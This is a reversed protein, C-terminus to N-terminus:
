SKKEIKLGLSEYQKLNEYHLMYKEKDGLNPVLTKVKNINIQEPALPYHNHLDHLSSPYELDVELISSYNRWNELENPEMWEFGHKPLPISMASRYLNNADLYIIYKTPKSADYRNGM